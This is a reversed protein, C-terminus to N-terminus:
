KKGEGTENRQRINERGGTCLLRKGPFSFFMRSFYSTLWSLFVKGRENEDDIDYEHFLTQQKKKPSPHFIIEFTDFHCKKSKDPQSLCLSLTFSVAISSIVQCCVIFSCLVIHVNTFTQCFVTSNKHRFKQKKVSNINPFLGKLCRRRKNSESGKRNDEQLSPFMEIGSVGVKLEYGPAQV